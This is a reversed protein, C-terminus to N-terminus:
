TQGKLAVPSDHYKAGPTLPTMDPFFLRKQEQLSIVSDQVLNKWIVSRESRLCCSNRPTSQRLTNGTNM